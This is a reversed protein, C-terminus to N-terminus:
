FARYSGRGFTYQHFRELGWVVALMEKEISAYHKETETLVRSVYAIPKEKQILAAGLDKSSADCQLILEENSDSFALVPTLAVLKKM